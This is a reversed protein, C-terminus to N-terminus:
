QKFSSRDEDRYLGLSDIDRYDDWFRGMAEKLDKWERLMWEINREQDKPPLEPNVSLMGWRQTKGMAALIEGCEEVCHALRQDINLGKIYKEDAM